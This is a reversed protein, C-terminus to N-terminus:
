NKRFIRIKFYEAIVIELFGIAAILPWWGAALFRTDLVRQLPPFYIALFMLVIGLIFAAVLLRNSLIDKRFITRKFSRVSFSFLLSDLCLLAFVITRTKELDGTIKLLLWFLSLVIIGFALFVVLMWKKLQRDLFPAKPDRPKEEMVGKTEQETTLAVDPFGDEVLNIWLIQAPLLPLPLGLSMSGL